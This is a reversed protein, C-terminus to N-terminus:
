LIERIMPLRKNIKNWVAEYIQALKTHGTIWWCGEALLFGGAVDYLVHQKTTLTSVFVAIATVCSFIRYGAPVNKRGRIGIYCLWSVLCHISPFLNDASDVSYLFRMAIDWIGNNGVEPRTNTSPLALFFLFCIVKALIDTSLFRYAEHKGQRVSLIYNVIWFLYCGFYISVTWPIYPIMLDLNTELNHHHWGGAILKAGGYVLTNFLFTFILPALGYAPIVRFLREKLKM